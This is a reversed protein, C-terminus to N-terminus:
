IWGDDDKLLQENMLKEALNWMEVFEEATVDALERWSGTGDPVGEELWRAFLDEDYLEGRLYDDLCMLTKARIEPTMVEALGKTMIAM